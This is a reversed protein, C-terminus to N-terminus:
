IGKDKSLMARIQSSLNTVAQGEKDLAVIVSKIKVIRERHIDILQFVEKHEQKCACLCEIVQEIDRVVAELIGSSVGIQTSYKVNRFLIELMLQKGTVVEVEDTSAPDIGKIDNM